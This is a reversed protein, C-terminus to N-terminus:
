VPDDPLFSVGQYFNGSASRKKEIGRGALEEAFTRPSPPRTLGEAETWEVFARYLSGAAAHGTKVTREELFRGVLDEGALYDASATEITPCEPFGRPGPTQLYISAERILRALIQPAEAKLRDELKPDERGEPVTFQFPVLRFRRATAIDVHRVELRHNSVLTLKIQPVFEIPDRHKRDATMPDGGTIQKVPGIALLGPPIEAVEGLRPGNLAVLDPRPGSLSGTDLVVRTSVTIGYSGAIYRMLRLLAGKGNRGGGWFNVFFPAATNGTLCYAFWRLLWAALDARALTIEALFGDFVPTEGEVPRTGTSRTFADAPTTPREPNQGSLDITVGQCNLLEPNADFDADDARIGSLDRAISLVAELSRNSQCARAFQEASKYDAAGRMDQRHYALRRVGTKALSEAFTEQFSGTLRNFFLWGHSPTWRFWDAFAEAFAEAQGAETPAWQSIQNTGVFLDADIELMEVFRDFPKRTIDAELIRYRELKAINEVSLIDSM